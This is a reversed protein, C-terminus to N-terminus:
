DLDIIDYDDSTSQKRLAEIDAHIIAHNSTSLGREIREKDYLQCAALVRSGMPAKKIDPTDISKLMQLQLHALIDARQEKYVKTLETPLLHAIANHVAQASVGQVQGIERYSAGNTKLKLAQKIDVRNDVRTKPQKLPKQPPTKDTHQVSM